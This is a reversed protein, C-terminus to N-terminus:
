RESETEDHGTLFARVTGAEDSTLGHVALIEDQTAPSWGFYAVLSRWTIGQRVTGAILADGEALRGRKVLGKISELSRGALQAAYARSLLIM